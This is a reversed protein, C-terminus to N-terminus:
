HGSNREAEDILQEMEALSQELSAIQEATDDAPAEDEAYKVWAFEEGEFEAVAYGDAFLDLAEGAIVLSTPGAVDILLQDAGSEKVTACLDDLTCPVPRADAQWQQMSDLGTFALLFTGSDNVLKVAAMEAHRDPDPHDTEDGSAVIPMLLRSSCLAVLARVYSTHDSVRAIAQRTIPDPSGDDGAFRANPDALTRM